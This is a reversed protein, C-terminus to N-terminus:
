SFFRFSIEHQPLRSSLFNFGAEGYTVRLASALMFCPPAPVSWSLMM